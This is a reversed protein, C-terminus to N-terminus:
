KKEEAMKAQVAADAKKDAAAKTEAAEVAREADKKASEIAAAEDTGNQKAELAALRAKADDLQKKCNEFVKTQKKVLARAEALSLATNNTKTADAAANEREVRAKADSVKAEDAQVAADAAQKDRTAQDLEEKETAEAQQTRAKRQKM